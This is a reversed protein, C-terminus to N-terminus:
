YQDQQFWDHKQADEDLGKGTVYGFFKEINELLTGINDGRTASVPIVIDQTRGVEAIRSSAEEPELLDIKNMVVMRPIEEAGISQLLTEVVSIDDNFGGFSADAVLLVLDSGSVEEMTARFATVLDHPLNRIFGVTDTMLIFSGGPLRVRRVFPDLTSFLRDESVLSKDGSLCKLLSSKGSNTYGALAVTRLGARVRRKRQAQRRERIIEIKRSIERERRELKRRHREFETEGPGRTGLGGGLRSMQMGLGKLLPIEYRCRALEIQLKAEGTQARQEFIKMIVLPRDWIMLGTIESLHAAQAPSLRGDVVLLSAGSERALLAIEQAKGSGIFSDPDPKDRRQIMQGATGTGLNELLLSLEKLSADLGEPDKGSIAVLIATSPWGKGRDTL